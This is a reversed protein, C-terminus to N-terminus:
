ANQRNAIVQVESNAEAKKHRLIFKENIIIIIIGVCFGEFTRM